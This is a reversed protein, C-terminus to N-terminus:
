HYIDQFDKVIQLLLIVLQLSRMILKNRIVKRLFVKLKNWSKKLM